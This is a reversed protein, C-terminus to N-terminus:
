DLLHSEYPHRKRNLSAWHECVELANDGDQQFRICPLMDMELEALPVVQLAGTDDEIVFYKSM